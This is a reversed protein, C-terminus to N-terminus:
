SRGEAKAIAIRADHVWFDGPSACSVAIKLAELLEPAAAILRANFPGKPGNGVHCVDVDGGDQEASIFLFRTEPSMRVSNAVYEGIEDPTMPRGEAHVMNHATWPGPTHKTQTLLDPKPASAEQPAADVAYGEAICDPCIPGNADASIAGQGCHTCLNM